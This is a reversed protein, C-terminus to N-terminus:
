VPFKMDSFTDKHKSVSYSLFKSSFEAELLRKTLIKNFAKM